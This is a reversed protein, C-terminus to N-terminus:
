PWIETDVGNEGYGDRDTSKRELYGCSFSYATLRGTSTRFQPTPM